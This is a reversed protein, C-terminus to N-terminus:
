ADEIDLVLDVGALRCADILYDAVFGPAPRWTCEVKRLNPLSIACDISLQHLADEVDDDWETKVILTELSEPLLASLPLLELTDDDGWLVLGAVSLYTLAKFERLSGLAPTIRDMDVRWASQSTDITLYTLTQQVLQLSKQLAPLNFANKPVFQDTWQWRYSFRDLSACDKLHDDLCRFSANQIVLYIEKMAPPPGFELWMSDPLYSRRLYHALCGHSEKNNSIMVRLEYAEGFSLGHNKLWLRRFKSPHIFRKFALTTLVTHCDPLAADQLNETISLLVAFVYSCTLVLQKRVRLRTPNLLRTCDQGSTIDDNGFLLDKTPEPTPVLWQANTLREKYECYDSKTLNKSMNLEMGSFVAFEIYQVHQGLKPNNLLTRFLLPVFLRRQTWIICQFLLATAIANFKRCSLTLAHLSRVTVANKCRRQEEAEEDALFGRQVRLQLVIATLLEDPLEGIFCTSADTAAEM